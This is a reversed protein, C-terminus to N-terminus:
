NCGLYDLWTEIVNYIVDDDPWFSVGMLFFNIKEM